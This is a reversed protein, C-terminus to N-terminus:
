ARKIAALAHILEIPMREGSIRFHELSRQTQAGWRREADVEVEGMSDTEIRKATMAQETLRRKAMRSPLEKWRRTSRRLKRAEGCPQALACAAGREERPRYPCM